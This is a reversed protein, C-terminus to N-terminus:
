FFDDFLDSAKSKDKDTLHSYTNITEQINSHGLQEQIVKFNADKSIMFSACSHRLGHFNLTPLNYKKLFDYWRQDLGSPHTPFGNKKTLLLNIPEGNDDLMPNWADGSAEKLVEQQEAFAKLEIMFKSPVNVIRSKKNKTPGMFLKKQFKDFQLTKDILITNEDFNLCEIRVGGVEGMRLGVLLALKVSISFKSDVNELASLLQKIQEEDYFKIKRQRKEVKPEDVNKMPSEGIVEWKVAKSFVSKLVMYKGTLGKINKDKLEKFFTVIHFTKISRMKMEGFYDLIGNKLHMTHTTRTGVTLEAIVYIDMWREVFQGFTINEFTKNNGIAAVEVEFDRIAKNITRESLTNLTVTKFKRIRKGTEEDYGQEVTIKIRPKGDKAPTLEKYSAM